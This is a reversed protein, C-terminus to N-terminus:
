KGFFFLISSFSFVLIIILQYGKRFVVFCEDIKGKKYNEVFKPFLASSIPYVLQVISLTAMSILSYYALESTLFIKSILLKDIIVYLTGIISYFGIGLIYNKLTKIIKFSFKAKLFELNNTGWINYILMLVHFLYLSILFIFYGTIGLNFYGFLIYLVSINLVGVVIKVLNLSFMKQFGCMVNDYFSIPWRFILAIGILRIVFKLQDQTINEVNLWNISIWGSFLNLFLGILFALFWYISEFSRIIDSTKKSSDKLAISSAVERNITLGLGMDLVVFCSVLTTFFTILGYEEVTLFKLYIPVLLFNVILITINGSYNSLINKKLSM